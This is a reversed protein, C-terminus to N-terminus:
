RPATPQVLADPAGERETRALLIGASLSWIAALPLKPAALLYIAFPVPEFVNFAADLLTFCGVVLTFIGFGTSRSRAAAGLALLWVAALSLYTTELGQSGHRLGGYTWLSVSVVGAATGVLLAIRHAGRFRRYLRLAGPILLLNWGATLLSNAAGAATGPTAHELRHSTATNAVAWAFWCLGAGIALVGAVRDANRETV